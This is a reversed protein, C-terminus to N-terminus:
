DRRGEPKEKAGKGSGEKIIPSKSGFRGKKEERKKGMMGATATELDRKEDDSRRTAKVGEETAM